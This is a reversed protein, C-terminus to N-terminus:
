SGGTLNMIEVDQALCRLNSLIRISNLSKVTVKLLAKGTGHFEFIQAEVCSCIVLAVTSMVVAAFFM